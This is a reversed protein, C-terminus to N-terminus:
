RGRPAWSTLPEVLFTVVLREGGVANRREAKPGDVIRYGDAVATEIAQLIASPIHADPPLFWVWKERM